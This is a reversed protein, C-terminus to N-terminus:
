LIFSESCSNQTSADANFHITEIGKLMRLIERCLASASTFVPHGTEKFRQVMQSAVSNWKGEPFYKAKGYWKKDDGPGLFTWHGQPFKKAYTKVKESNSIGIDDNGTWYIDNFVSM